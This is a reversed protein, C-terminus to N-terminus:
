EYSSQVLSMLTTFLKEEFGEDTFIVNEGYVQEYDSRNRDKGIVLTTNPIGRLYKTRLEKTNVGRFQFNNSGVACYTEGDTLNLVVINKTVVNKKMWKMLGPLVAYEATASGMAHGGGDTVPSYTDVGLVRDLPATAGGLCTSGLGKANSMVRTLTVFQGEIFSNKSEVCPASKVFVEIKIKDKVVNHVAKGFASCVANAVNLRSLRFSDFEKVGCDMSGSGDILMVFTTDSSPIHEHSKFINDNFAYRYARRPDLRGKNTHQVRPIKSELLLGIKRAFKRYLNDRYSVMWTPPKRDPYINEEKFIFEETKNRM